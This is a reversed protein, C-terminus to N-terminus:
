LVPQGVEAHRFRATGGLANQLALNWLSPCSSGTGPARHAAWAVVGRDAVVVARHRVAQPAGATGRSLRASRRM